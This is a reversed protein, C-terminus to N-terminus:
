IEQSIQNLNPIHFRCTISNLLQAKRSFRYPLATIELAKKTHSLANSDKFTGLSQGRTRRFLTTNFHFHSHSIPPVSNVASPSFEVM